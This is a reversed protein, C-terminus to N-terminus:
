VQTPPLHKQDDQNQSRIQTSLGWVFLLVGVIGIPLGLPLLVMTVGMGMGILMLTFGLIMAVMHGAIQGGTQLAQRASSHHRNM